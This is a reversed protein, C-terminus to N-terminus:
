GGRRSLRGAIYDPVDEREIGLAVALEGFLLEEARRMFREDIPAVSAPQWPADGRPADGAHALSGRQEERVSKGGDKREPWVRTAHALISVM